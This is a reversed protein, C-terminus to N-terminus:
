DGNSVEQVNTVIPHGYSVEYQTPCERCTRVHRIEDNWRNLTDEHRTKGGCNPCTTVDTM